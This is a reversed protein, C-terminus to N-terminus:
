YAYFVSDFTNHAHIRFRLRYGLGLNRIFRPIQWLDDWRHYGAIALIPRNRRLTNVAGALAEIEHGEVDLKLYTVPLNPLCEDLRAVQILGSGEPGIASAGGQGASFNLSGTRSSLGCPFCTVPFAFGASRAALKSFNDLDPEFAYAGRLRLHRSAADLTDGDYAGGDVFYADQALDAAPFGPFYHPELVPQPAHEPFRGLRFAIAAAFQLRSQEDDLESFTERLADSHRRYNERDTLWYRWGLHQSVAEFYQQPFIVAELGAAKCQAAIVTYDSQTRHNYVGIWLPLHRFEPGLENLSFAPLGDVAETSRSTVVFAKPSVGAERLATSLARAFSGTGFVLVGSKRAVSLFEDAKQMPLRIELAM